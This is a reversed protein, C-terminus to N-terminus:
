ESANWPASVSVSVSVSVSCPSGRTSLYVHNISQNIRALFDRTDSTLIYLRTRRTPTPTQTRTRTPAMSHWRIAGMRRPATASQPRRVRGVLGHPTQVLEDPPLSLESIQEHRGVDPLHRDAAHREAADVQRRRTVRGTVAVVFEDRYLQFEVPGVGVRVDKSAEAGPDDRPHRRTQM